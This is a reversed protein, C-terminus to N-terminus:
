EDLLKRQLPRPNRCGGSTDICLRLGAVDESFFPKGCKLCHRWGVKRVVRHPRDSIDLVPERRVCGDYAWQEPEIIGIMTAKHQQNLLQETTRPQGQRECHAALWPPAADTLMLATGLAM